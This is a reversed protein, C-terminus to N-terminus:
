AVDLDVLNRVSIDIQGAVPIPLVADFQAQPLLERATDRESNWAADIRVVKVTHDDPAPLELHLDATGIQGLLHHLRSTRPKYERGGPTTKHTVGSTHNPHKEQAYFCINLIYPPFDILPIINVL